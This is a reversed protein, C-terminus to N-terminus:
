LFQGIYRQLEKVSFVAELFGVEHPLLAIPNKFYCSLFLAYQKRRAWNYEKFPNAEYVGDRYVQYSVASNNTNRIRFSPGKKM